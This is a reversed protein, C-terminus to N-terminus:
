IDIKKSITPELMLILKLNDRMCMIVQHVLIQLTNLLLKKIDTPMQINMIDDM